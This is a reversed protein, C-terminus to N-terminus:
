GWVIGWILLLLGCLVLFEFSFKFNLCILFVFVSCLVSVMFQDLEKDDGLNGHGLASYKAVVHQSQALQADIRPLQDVPTAIRLCAVHASLLQEYLPHVLIEAKCRANQWNVVGDAGGSGGGGGVESDNLEGGRNSEINRNNENNNNLDDSEHSIAAAIMSDNSVQVDDRVDSINRQLIPRSHWQNPTQSTRPDSNTHLNLFNGEGYQSQQRLIASNLWTPGVGVQAPQQHNHQDPPKGAADPSTQGLHQPLVNRLVSTNETTLHQDSYHQLSAMEQSLHNPYAM